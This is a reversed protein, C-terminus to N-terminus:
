IRVVVSELTERQHREPREVRLANGEMYKGAEKPGTETLWDLGPRSPGISLDLSSLHLNVIGRRETGPRTGSLRARMPARDAPRFRSKAEMITSAAGPRAASGARRSM